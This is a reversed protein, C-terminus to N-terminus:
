PGDMNSCIAPNEEKISSYYELTHTLSLSHKHMIYIYKYICIYIYIHVLVNGGVIYLNEKRWTRALM